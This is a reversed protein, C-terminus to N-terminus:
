EETADEWEGIGSPDLHVHVDGVDDIQQLADILDTELDHAELLTMDAPVEAHFEVELKPGIYYIQLDHVGRVQPHDTIRTKITQTQTDSPATGVLYAVNERAIAIGQWFVLLSVVGGAVPDLIPYNTAVGLVGVGAALSTYIDNRCDAALARLAPSDLANNVRVTYYYVGGMLLLAAALGALLAPSYRVTPGDLFANTADYLLVAALAVLVAGVFLATLPEIREHGHPHDADPGRFSARGWVLVVGSALLDAISHTADAILAISGFALGIGGEVIIKLLNGVVNVWAARVFASRGEVAM